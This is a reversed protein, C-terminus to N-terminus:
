DSTFFFCVKKSKRLQEFYHSCSDRAFKHAQLTTNRYMCINNENKEDYTLIKLLTTDNASVLNTWNAHSTIADYRDRHEPSFHVDWLIVYLAM